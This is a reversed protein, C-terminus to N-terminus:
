KLLMRQSVVNWGSLKLEYDATKLSTKPIYCKIDRKEGPLLSIYNDDWFLPFIQNGTQHLVSLNIFFAITNSQNELTVTLEQKGGKDSKKYSALVKTLPLSELATHDAFGKLPTYAWTTKDWAFVDPKDSLWYFNRGMQKGKNSTLTIDLFAAGTIPELAFVKESKNTNVSFNVEKLFLLKSNLDFIRITAKLNEANQMTENVAFVSNNQYDYMLQLPENAKRVAYYASTPLLYYDYLQWYTSPWASNLMWQIIGTTKPLRVRFAEFMARMAEYGQADAKQLFDDLGSPKGYRKELMEATVKMTNFGQKSHTCHYDWATNLPWLQDAPIMRKISEMVPVQAGPGTETNFGFAGGNITDCYWYVPAVYEYPGNMKVGTPGSYKSV